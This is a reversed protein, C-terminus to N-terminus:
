NECRSQLHALVKGIIYLFRERESKNFENKSVAVGAIWRVLRHLGPGVDGVLDAEEVM